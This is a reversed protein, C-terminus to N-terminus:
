SLEKISGCAAYYQLVYHAVYLISLALVYLKISVMYDEYFYYGAIVGVGCLLTRLIQWILDYRQLGALLVTSAMPTSLCQFYVMIAVVSAIEGAEGWNKGFLISFVSEGLIVIVSLPLLPYTALLRSNKLFLNKCNGSLNYLPSASTKYVDSVATLILSVPAALLRQALAYLGAVSTGYLVGLLLVPLNSSITNSLQGLIMYKPFKSYMKGVELMSSISVLKLKLASRKIQFYVLFSVALLLGAAYGGLLGFTSVFFLGSAIQFITVFSAQMFRSASVYKFKKKRLFLQIMISNLCTIFIIPPILYIYQSVINKYPLFISFELTVAFIASLSIIALLAVLLSLAALNIAWTGRPAMIIAQDYTATVVVSCISVVALCLGFAGFDSPSFIRTILPSAILSVFQAAGAGGVLVIVGNSLLSKLKMIEAKIRAEFVIKAM